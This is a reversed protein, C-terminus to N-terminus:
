QWEGAQLVPADVHGPAGNFKPAEDEWRRQNLWTAPHPIFQGADKRWQESKSQAQIASLVRDLDVESLGCKAWAKEAAGKGAKRPFATWFREFLHGAESARM